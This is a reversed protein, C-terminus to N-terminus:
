YNYLFKGAGIITDICQSMPSKIPAFSDSLNTAPAYSENTVPLLARTKVVPTNQVAFHRQAEVYPQSTSSTVTQQQSAEYPLPTEHRRHCFPQGRGLGLQPHRPHRPAAWKLPSSLCAM